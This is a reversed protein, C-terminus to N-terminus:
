VRLAAVMRRLRQVRAQDEVGGYRLNAYLLSIEEIQTALDPRLSSVRAAFARPGEYPARGLDRRALKACLRQYAQAVPDIARRRRLYVFLAAVALVGTLAIVMAVTMSQWDVEGFGLNSLFERQRDPGYALVWENWANNAADWYLGLSRFLSEGRRAMLPLSAPDDAVAFLGQEIREPAVASTPDIRVWGRGELYVEAWAHADSQRVIFYDGNQEGGQYGTVVRAPIGAARMLFVFSGAYHECFGRRTNFLFEDIGNDGLLPPQLTYYFSRHYFDLAAQVIAAEALGQARWRQALERARPNSLPPMSKTYRTRENRDLAGTHYRLYSTMAYSLRENVPEARRLQLTGTIGSKAPFAAPLDLAFLWRQGHPELTVTYDLQGGVPRYPLRDLLAEDSGKWTKGDYRWLVPGRWYLQAPTPITGSFRARFAVEDSRILQNISGPAMEESLGTHGAFADKPLGWLPGPIRPFLIFLILMIPVAQVLMRGILTLTVIPALPQTRTHVALQAALVICLAFLLYAAAVLDQTFLLNGMLLFYGLTTLVAGDRVTRAELLKLAAMAALLAMGADRGFLTGAYAVIGAVVILTFMMLLWRRPLALRSKEARWRWAAAIAFLVGLWPPLHNLHPVLVVALAATLWLTATASLVPEPPKNKAQAM